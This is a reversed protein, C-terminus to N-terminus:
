KPKFVLKNAVRLLGGLGVVLPVLQGTSNVRNVGGIRNWKIMLEVALTVLVMVGGRGYNIYFLYRSTRRQNRTGPGGAATPARSSNISTPSATPPPPQASEVTTTTGGNGGVEEIDEMGVDNRRRYLLFDRHSTRVVYLFGIIIFTAYYITGVSFLFALFIRAGSYLDLKAWYFGYRSCPPHLMDFMGACTFWIGYAFFGLSLIQQVLGGVTPELIESWREPTDFLRSLPPLDGCLIGGIPLLLMLLGEVAYLNDGQTVTLYILGSFMAAVFCNNVGRISVAEERIFGYALLFTAWQFYLGLRIGLGYADGNGLFGCPAPSDTTTAARASVRETTESTPLALAPFACLALLFLPQIPSDLFFTALPLKPM